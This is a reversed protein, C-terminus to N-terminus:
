HCLTVVTVVFPYKAHVVGCGAKPGSDPAALYGAPALGLLHIIIIITTPFMREIKFVAGDEMRLPKLVIKVKEGETFDVGQYALVKRQNSRGVDRSQHAL